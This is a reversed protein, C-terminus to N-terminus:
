GIPGTEDAAISRPLGGFRCHCGRNRATARACPHEVPIPQGKAAAEAQAAALADAQGGSGHTSGSSEGETLPRMTPTYAFTPLISM